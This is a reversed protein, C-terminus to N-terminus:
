SKVTAHSELRSPVFYLLPLLVYIALSLRTDVFALLIALGFLFPNMLSKIIASKLLHQEFGEDILKGVYFAYYRMGSFSLGALLSVIGYSIVAIRENPYDGILATPFPIFALWMLFLCNLWLLGRDSRKIFHFLNHHSSWWICIIIFSLIYSLFKPTLALLNQLLADSIDSGYLQPIRIDLVLLTVVISFVGDSFAAIRDKPMNGTRFFRYM